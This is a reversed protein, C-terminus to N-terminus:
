LRLSRAGLSGAVWCRARAGAVACSARFQRIRATPSAQAKSSPAWGEDSVARSARDGDSRHRIGLFLRAEGEPVAPHSPQGWCADGCCSQGIASELTRYRSPGAAWDKDTQFQRGLRPGRVLCRTPCPKRCPLRLGVGARGDVCEERARHGRCTVVRDVETRWSDAGSRCPRSRGYEPHRIRSLSCHLTNQEFTKSVISWRRRRFCNSPGHRSPSLKQSTPVMLLAPPLNQWGVSIM